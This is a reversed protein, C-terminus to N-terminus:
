KMGAVICALVKAERRAQIRTKKTAAIVLQPPNQVAQVLCGPQANNPIIANITQEMSEQNVRKVVSKKKFVLQNALDVLINM